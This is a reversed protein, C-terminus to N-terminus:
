GKGISREQNGLQWGVVAADYVFGYIAEMIDPHKTGSRSVIEKMGKKTPRSNGAKGEQYGIIYAEAADKAVRDIVKKIGPNKHLEGVCEALIKKMRRESYVDRGLKEIAGMSFFAGMETKINTSKKPLQVREM